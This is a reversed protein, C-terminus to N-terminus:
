PSIKIANARFRSIVKPFRGMPSAPTIKGSEPGRTLPHSVRKKLNNDIEHTNDM